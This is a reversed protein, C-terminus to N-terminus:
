AALQPQTIEIGDQFCAGAIVKPFFEVGALKNWGKQAIGFLKYVMALAVAEGICGRMRHTRLRLTAFTSEIPNTTRLSKWHEAPFDYFALLADQDKELCAIAAPYKAGYTRAFSDIAALADKRNAANWIERIDRKVPEQLKKPFFNTLNRTKHVWCRQATTEPFVQSLAAWFGMAGDGVAVKPAQELGRRRLNALLSRWSETSERVGEELALLEKDGNENVGMIVLVCNKDSKGRIKLYVGDVWLYAYTKGALPRQQWTALEQCWTNKLRRIVGMSLNPCDEGLLEKLGQAMNAESVGQLYLWPLTREVSLERRLYPPLMRSHFVAPQNPDRSRLKPMRVGIPGCSAVITRPPNHGNRVVVEKGDESPPLQARLDQLAEALEAELAAQLLNRTQLRLWEALPSKGAEGDHCPMALVNDEKM